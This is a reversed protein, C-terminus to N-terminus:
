KQVNPYFDKKTKSCDSHAWQWFHESAMQPRYAELVLLTPARLNFHEKNEIVQLQNFVNALANAAELTIIAPSDAFYGELRSGILNDNGTYKLDILLDPVHQELLVFGDPLANAKM